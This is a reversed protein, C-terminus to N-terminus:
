TRIALGLVLSTNSNQYRGRYHKEFIRSREDEPIGPCADSVAIV